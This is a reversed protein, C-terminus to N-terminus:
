LSVPNYWVKWGVSSGVKLQEVQNIEEFAEWQKEVLDWDLDLTEASGGDVVSPEGEPVNERYTVSGGDCIEETPWEEQDRRTMHKNSKKTQGWISEEVDVSTVFMRLPLEGRDQKESPAILRAPADTVRTAITVGNPVQSPLPAAFNSFVIKRPLPVAMSQKFGKKKNKNRLASMMVEGKGENSPGQSAVVAVPYVDMRSGPDLKGAKANIGFANNLALAVDGAPGDRDKQTKSKTGLPHLNTLSIGTPPIPALETRTAEKEHKKKVRRRRNRSQTSPRGFGPLVAHKSLNALLCLCILAPPYSV